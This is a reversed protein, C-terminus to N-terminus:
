VPLELFKYNILYTMGMVELLVPKLCFLRAIQHFSIVHIIIATIFIYIEECWDVLFSFCSHIQPCPFNPPSTLIELWHQKSLMNSSQLCRIRQAQSSNRRRSFSGTKVGSLLINCKVLVIQRIKGIFPFIYYPVATLVMGTIQNQIAILEEIYNM